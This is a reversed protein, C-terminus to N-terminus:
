PHHRTIGLFEASVAWITEIQDTLEHGSDLWVLRATPNARAWGEVSAPEVVDDRRGMFVLAPVRVRPRPDHRGLDEYLGYGIPREEGYAYHFTPLAGRRCWDALKADGYRARWGAQMDFAPAMLVLTEVRADGSAFLAALYGGMSSGILRVPGPALDVEGRIVALQRSITLGTFDGEDLAPVSIEAGAAAIRERFARAKSSAPSSAFGHLYVYRPM